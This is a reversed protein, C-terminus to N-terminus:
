RPFHKLQMRLSLTKFGSVGQVHTAQIQSQIKCIQVLFHFGKEQTPDAASPDLFRGPLAGVCTAPEKAQQIDPSM